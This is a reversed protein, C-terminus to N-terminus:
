GTPDTSTFDNVLVGNLFVKINQGQVQIEYANWQGVPKLAARRRGRGAGQFTYISGTTCDADDSEDIQIEYGQNIAVNPDNGPNPFGVFVGGNDDKRAELGAQPQLQSGSAPSWLLGLGGESRLSCDPRAASRAPAPRRWGTFSELTGDFLGTYGAGAAPPTCIDREAGVKLADFNVSGDDGTEYRM